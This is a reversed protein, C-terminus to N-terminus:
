KTLNTESYYNHKQTKYSIIMAGWIYFQYNDLANNGSLMANILYMLFLAILFISESEKNMKKIKKFVMFIFLIIFVAGIVGLECMFELIINHPYTFTYISYSYFYNGVGCGFLINRVFLEIAKTYLSLRGAGGYASESSLRQIIFDMPMYQFIVLFIIVCVSLAIVIPIKLKKKMEDKSMNKSLHMFKNCIFIVYVVLLGIIVGKAGTAVILMFLLANLSWKAIKNELFVLSLVATEAFFRGLWISILSKTSIRWGMSISFMWQKYYKLILISLIIINFVLFVKALLKISKNNLDSILILIISGCVAITEITKIWSNYNDWSKFYLNFVLYIIFISAICAIKIFKKKNFNYQKFLLIFVFYMSLGVALFIHSIVYRETVASIVNSNYAIYLFTFSIILKINLQQKKMNLEMKMKSIYKTVFGWAM